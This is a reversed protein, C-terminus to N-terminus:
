NTKTTKDLPKLVVESYAQYGYFNYKKQNVPVVTGNRLSEVEAFEKFTYNSNEFALIAGNSNFVIEPKNIPFEEIRQIPLYISMLVLIAAPILLIFSSEEGEKVLVIFGVLFLLTLLVLIIFLIVM